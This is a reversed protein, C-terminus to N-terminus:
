TCRSERWLAFVGEARLLREFRYELESYGEYEHSLSLMAEDESLVGDQVARDIQLIIMDRLRLEEAVRLMEAQCWEALLETARRKRQAHQDPPRYPPRYRSDDYLDALGIGLAACIDAVACGAWCHLLLRDDTRRISLTPFHDDHAPCLARWSDEGCPRIQALLPLVREAATDIM